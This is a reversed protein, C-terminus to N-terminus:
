KNFVERANRQKTLVEDLHTRFAEWSERNDKQEPTEVKSAKPGAKLKDPNFVGREIMEEALYGPIVIDSQEVRM